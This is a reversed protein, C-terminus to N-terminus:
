KGPLNTKEKRKEKSLSLMKLYDEREIEEYSLTIPNQKFYIDFGSRGDRNKIVFIRGIGFEREEITQNISLVQHMPRIQGYSDGINDSDMVGNEKIITNGGRNAQLASLVCLNEEAGFCLLESVNKQRSDHIKQGPVDKIEGIYDVVLLDPQFGSSQLQSYYARLTNIDATQPPFYKIRLNEEYDVAARLYNHIDEQRTFHDKRNFIPDLKGPYFLQKFSEQDQGFFLSDFREGIKDQNMELTIFLVKKKRLLNCISVQILMFSKGSGSLGLFAYMEGRSLGGNNTCIDIGPFGTVFVEEEQKAKQMRAYRAELDAFYNLGIDTNRKVELARRLSMDIEAWKNETDREFLDMCRMFACKLSSTKAFTEIKNLLYERLELELDYCQYLLELETKNKLETAPNGGFKDQFYKKLPLQKSEDYFSYLIRCIDQHSQKEFHGVEVLSRCQLLFFKDRLMLSLITKELDEGFNFNDEKKVPNQIAKLIEQEEANLQIEM